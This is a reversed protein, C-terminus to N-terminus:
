TSLIAQLVAGVAVLLLGWAGGLIFKRWREYRTRPDKPDLIELGPVIIPLIYELAVGGAVAILALAFLVYSAGSSLSAVAIAAIAFGAAVSLSILGSAFGTPVHRKGRDLQQGLQKALGSVAVHNTGSVSVSAGSFEKYKGRLMFMVSVKSQWGSVHATIDEAEALRGSKGYERFEAPDDFKAQGNATDVKISLSLNEADPDTESALQFAREFLDSMESPTGKWADLEYSEKAVHEV